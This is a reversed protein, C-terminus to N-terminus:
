FFSFFLALIHLSDIGELATKAIKAQNLRVIVITGNKEGFNGNKKFLAMVKQGLQRPTQNVKEM